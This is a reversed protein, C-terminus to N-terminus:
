GSYVLQNDYTPECVLLPNLTSLDRRVVGTVNPYTFSTTITIVVVESM